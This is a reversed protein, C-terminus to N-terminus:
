DINYLLCCTIDLVAEIFEEINKRTEHNRKKPMNLKIKAENIKKAPKGIEPKPKTGSWCRRISLTEKANARLKIHLLVKSRLSVAV